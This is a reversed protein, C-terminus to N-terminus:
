RGNHALVVFGFGGRFVNNGGSATHGVPEFLVPAYIGHPVFDDQGAELPHVPQILCGGVGGQASVPM